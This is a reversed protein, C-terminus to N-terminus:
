THLRHLSGPLGPEIVLMVVLRTLLVLQIAWISNEVRGRDLTLPWVREAAISDTLVASLARCVFPSPSPYRARNLLFVSSAPRTVPSERIVTQVLGRPITLSLVFRPTLLFWIKRAVNAALQLCPTRNGLGGLM